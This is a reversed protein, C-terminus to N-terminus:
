DQSLRPLSSEASKLTGTVSVIGNVSASLSPLPRVIGILASLRGIVVQIFRIGQTRVGPEVTFRSGPPPVLVLPTLIWRIKVTNGTTCKGRDKDVGAM